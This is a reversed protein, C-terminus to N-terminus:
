HLSVRAEAAEMQRRLGAFYATLEDASKVSGKSCSGTSCGGGTGCSSCGSKEAGCTECGGTAAKPTTTLDALKVPLGHRASLQEFLPTADCDAWHVAQLIAPGGDLLIEGDLFLLPLGLSEALAQADAVIEAAQGALEAVASEDDATAIRVVEGGLDPGPVGRTAEGLVTGLEMGRVTRLVVRDDRRLVARYRFRGLFGGHGYTVLYERDSMRYEPSVIM